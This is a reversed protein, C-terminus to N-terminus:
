ALQIWEIKDSFAAQESCVTIRYEGHDYTTFRLKGAQKSLKPEGILMVRIDERVSVQIHEPALSLGLGFWKMVSEKVTWLRTYIRDSMSDTPLISKANESLKGSDDKAAYPIPNTNRCLEMLAPIKPLVAPLDTHMLGEVMQIEDPTFAKRILSGSFQRPREIDIGVPRESVACIAINETHSLNFECGKVTPKGEPTIIIEAGTCGAYELARETVIGAGLSLRKGTDFKMRNVQDRREPRQKELYRAFVASDALSNVDIAFIKNDM